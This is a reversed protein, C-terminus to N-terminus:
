TDALTTLLSGRYNLKRAIRIVQGADHHAQKAQALVLNLLRQAIQNHQQVLSIVPNNLFDLAENDGFTAVIWDTPWTRQTERLADFVGQLLSFSTTFLANPLCNHQLYDIFATKASQRQYHEAYLYDVQTATFQESVQRFGQERLQSVSLQPLAGFYLVQNVPLQFLAQALLASDQRDEGVISTFYREDLLRDLAIIPFEARYQEPYFPHDGPLVSSVILADVKRQLLHAVCRMENDMDDESCALLLQYGQERALQELQSAIRTYSTNELDPIILGISRTKGARLGAAVVNPYYNYAKVIDMVKQATKESVRRLKAQGNIVYSATTRSVGALKAIEDLKM